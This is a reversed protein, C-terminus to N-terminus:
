RYQNPDHQHPILKPHQRCYAVMCEVLRDYLDDKIYPLESINLRSESKEPYIFNKLRDLDAKISKINDKSFSEENCLTIDLFDVFAEFKIDWNINGNVQAEWRLKEISRLIEGQISNAQGSKPVLNSWIWRAVDEYSGKLDIEQIDGM